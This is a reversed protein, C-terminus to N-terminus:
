TWYKGRENKKNCINIAEEKNLFVTKGISSLSFSANYYNNNSWKGTVAFTKRKTHLSLRMTNVTATIVEFPYNRFYQSVIYVDKGLYILNNLLKDILEESDQELISNLISRDIM